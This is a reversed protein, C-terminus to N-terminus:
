FTIFSMDDLWMYVKLIVYNKPIVPVDKMERIFNYEGEDVERKGRYSRSFWFVKGKIPRCTEKLLRKRELISLSKYQGLYSYDSIVDNKFVHKLMYKEIDKADSYSMQMLDQDVESLLRQMRENVQNKQGNEAKEYLDQLITLKFMKCGLLNLNLRQKYEMARSYLERSKWPILETMLIFTEFHTIAYDIIEFDCSRPKSYFYKETEERVETIRSANISNIKAFFMDPMYLYGNIKTRDIRRMLSARHTGEKIQDTLPFAVAAQIAYSVERYDHIKLIAETLEELRIPNSYREDFGIAELLEFDLKKGVKQLMRELIAVKDNRSLPELKVGVYEDIIRNDCNNSIFRIERKNNTVSLIHERVIRPIHPAMVILGKDGHEIDLSFYEVDFYHSTMEEYSFILDAWFYRMIQNAYYTIKENIGGENGLKSNDLYLNTKDSENIFYSLGRSATDSNDSNLYYMRKNYEYYCDNWAYKQVFNEPYVSKLKNILIKEIETIFAQEPIYACKDCDWSAKYRIGGHKMAIQRLIANKDECSDTDRVFFAVNTQGWVRLAYITEMETISAGEANYDSKIYEHMVKIAENIDRNFNYKRREESSEVLRRIHGSLDEISPIWGRREGVLSIVMPISDAVAKLCLAVTRKAESEGGAIGWRLDLINLDIGYERGWPILKENVLKHIQNREEQMDKFSSSIFISVKKYHQVRKGYLPKYPMLDFDAPLPFSVDEENQKSKLRMDSEVDSFSIRNKDMITHNGIECWLVEIAKQRDSQSTDLFADVSFNFYSDAIYTINGKSITFLGFHDREGDVNEYIEEEEEGQADMLFEVQRYILTHIIVLEEKERSCGILYGKKEVLNEYENKYGASNKVHEYVKIEADDLKKIEAQESQVLACWKGVYQELKKISGYEKALGM